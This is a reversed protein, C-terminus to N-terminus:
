AASIKNGLGLKKKLLSKARGLQSRSTSEAIHLMAAIEKHSYGEIEYLNFVTKFGTPLADIIKMLDEVHLQQVINANIKPDQIADLTGVEKRFYKKNIWQLSSRVAITRMWAEFSDSHSLKDIHRFIRIFTEQLADQASAHDRSYRLCVTMLMPSYKKVLLFQADKQGNQCNKILKKLTM